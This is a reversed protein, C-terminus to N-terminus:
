ANIVIMLRFPVLIVSVSFFLDLKDLILSWFEFSALGLCTTTGFTNHLLGEEWTAISFFVTTLFGYVLSNWLCSLELHSIGHSSMDFNLPLTDLRKRMKLSTPIEM